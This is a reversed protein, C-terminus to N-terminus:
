SLSPGTPAGGRRSRRTRSFAKEGRPPGHARGCGNRGGHVAGERGGAEGGEEGTEPPRRSSFPVAIASEKSLLAAFFSLSSLAVRVRWRSAATPRGSDGARAARDAPSRDGSAPDARDASMGVESEGASAGTGGPDLALAAALVGFLTALVDSRGSIWGVSEASLPFVAFISAGLAAAHPRVLRIGLLYVAGACLAHLIWVTRHYGAPDRGSLARDALFSLVTLPRYYEYSWQALGAPPAFAGKLDISPLQRHLM